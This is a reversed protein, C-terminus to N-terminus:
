RERYRDIPSVGEQTVTVTGPVGPLSLDSLNVVCTVSAEVVGDTGVSAAFGNTNITVTRSVCGLGNSALAFDAVKRAAGNAAGANREISAARAADFAASQVAQHALALRGAMVLAMLVLLTGPIVIVLELTASGRENRRRTSM